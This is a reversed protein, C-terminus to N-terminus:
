LVTGRVRPRVTCWFDEHVFSITAKSRWPRDPNVVEVEFERWLEVIVKYLELMVFHRGLCMYDGHGFFLDARERERKKEANCEIWREPRFVEVDEGYLEVNRSIVWENIGVNTGEPVFHGELVIGGEPASRWFPSAMPPHIRVLEQVVAALYPLKRLEDFRAPRSLHGAAAAADIEAVLKTRVHPNTSIHLAAVRLTCGVTDAGSAMAVIAENELNKPPISDNAPSRYDVMHQLIDKKKNKKKKESDISSLRERVSREAIGFLLGAGHLDSSKPAFFKMVPLQMVWYLVPFVGVVNAIKVFMANAEVLGKADRGERVCGVEAGFVMEMLVDFNLWNMWRGMDMREGSEAFGRMKDLFEAIRVDM